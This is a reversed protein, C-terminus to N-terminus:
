YQLLCLVLAVEDRHQKPVWTDGGGQHEQEANHSSLVMM